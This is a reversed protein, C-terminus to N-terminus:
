FRWLNILTKVLNRLRSWTGPRQIIYLLLYTFLLMQNGGFQNATESRSREYYIIVTQHQSRTSQAVKFQIIPYVVVVYVVSFRMRPRHIGNYGPENKNLRRESVLMSKQSLTVEDAM